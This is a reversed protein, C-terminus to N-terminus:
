LIKAIDLSALSPDKDEGVGQSHMGWAYCLHRLPTNRSVAISVHYHQQKRLWWRTEWNLSLSAVLGPWRRNMASQSTSGCWRM